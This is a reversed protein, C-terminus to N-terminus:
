GAEPDPFTPDPVPVSAGGPLTTTREAVTSSPREHLPLHVARDVLMAGFLLALYLLSYRFLAMARPVMAGRGEDERRSRLLGVLMWLLRGGLALAALGYLMGFSGLLVPVLTLPLLVLTYGLMQRVTKRDGWAVPAMPVGAVAYDAKKVLALAWFHPPTWYFVILFLFLATLSVDGTVAAWGVLPPFAGAAGGIVINLPTSRKLWRTYVFVYFLLGAAALSAAVLNAAWALVVFATSGLAIGFCLVHLPGMRGAPLPRSCTRAMDGDIDRDLYMNIANAGGAMLYGGVLTWAVLSPAPEGAVYMPVVTTLLLLSIIRPKTLTVYDALHGAVGRATREGPSPQDARAESEPRGGHAADTSGGGDGREAPPRAVLFAMVVLAVFVSTGVALHVAQLWRPIGALVLGAAVGVQVLVLLTVAAASRRAAPDGPRRRSVWSPLFLSWVVLGYALVRHGWHLHTRWGGEPLWRGNCLPFGQCAPAAGLNAVLAGALVVVLGFAAALWGIRSALDSRVARFGSLARAAAVVLVALFAMATGLHLIVSAPPLELWVTVAGLLVQVVLLGAAAASLRRYPRWRAVRGPWWATAALVGVLVSVSAAVTRHSWELVPGLEMPPILRGNCLPWDPGCGMGSGTIRVVGGLVILGFAAGATVLALWGWRRISRHFPAPPTM